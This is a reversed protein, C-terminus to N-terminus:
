LSLSQKLVLNFAPMGERNNYRFSFENLYKQMHKVSITHYVGVIGRKLLAWFSEISNTHTDGIAFAKQHDIRQHKYLQKFIRYSHLDDTIVTTEPILCVEQIIALLQKGTLTRGNEDVTAIRAFVRKNERDIIGVVPTKNTGRGRKNKPQEEGFIKRPKGGIYTEDMELIHSFYSSTSQDIMASRILQLMRWATKYSGIGLDRQLQLASIGKKANLILAIAF